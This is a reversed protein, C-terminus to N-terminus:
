ATLIPWGSETQWYNDVIAVSGLADSVWRATPEDLPEGALFLHKLSSVDYKKLYAPDQKKLVRIATPASFMVAVKHDQVIKWWVGADPRVPVGEYLITTMGAILPGYIIYSHGVAWGIDSTTFITEGPGGCYIHQMSAAMAVAHGGVDRQVGKPRGTTGSTYPQMCIEDPDTRRRDLLPSAAEIMAEYELAGNMEEPQPGASILHKIGPLRDALARARAALAPNAILVKAESDEIVYALSEDGMKTNLPVPVAGLRMPGFLSELFRYDNSFCLAVRDGARVGLQRLANAMRNCRADLEEFSLVVDDQLVAPLEPALNLAADFIFGLNDPLM